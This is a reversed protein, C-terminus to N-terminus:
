RASAANSRNRRSQCQVEEIEINHLLLALKKKLKYVATKMGKADLVHLRGDLDRYTFDAIYVIGRIKETGPVLIIPEQEKLETIQGDRALAALKMALDAEFKSAYDGVRENHYKPPKKAPLGLVYATWADRESKRSLKAM